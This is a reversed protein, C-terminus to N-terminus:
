ASSPMRSEEVDRPSPSTYLLCVLIDALVTWGDDVTVSEVLIGQGFLVDTEGYRFTSETAEIVVTQRAGQAGEPPYVEFQSLAAPDETTSDEAETCAFLVLLAPTITM